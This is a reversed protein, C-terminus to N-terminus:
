PDVEDLIELSADNASDQGAAPTLWLSGRADILGPTIILGTADIKAADGPIAIDRGVAAIKGDRIVIAAEITGADTQTVVRGGILALVKAPAPARGNALVLTGLLLGGTIGVCARFLLKRSAQMFLDAQPM